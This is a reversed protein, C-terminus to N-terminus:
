VPELTFLPAGYGVASGHAALTEILVGAAPACVPLLLPGVQLLGLVQGAAVEMGAPALDESRLPHRQLFRGVSPANVTFAPLAGAEAEFAEEVVGAGQHRLRLGTGPGRLELLGIDTAALWAGIRRIDDPSM